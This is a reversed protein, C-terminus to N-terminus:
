YFGAPPVKGRAVRYVFRVWTPKDLAVYRVRLPGAGCSITRLAVGEGIWDGHCGADDITGTLLQRGVYIAIELSAERGFSRATSWEQVQGTAHLRATEARAAKAEVALILLLALVIVLVAAVIREPTRSPKKDPHKM